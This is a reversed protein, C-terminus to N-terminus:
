SCLKGIEWQCRKWILPVNRNAWSFSTNQLWDRIRAQKSKEESSPCIFNPLEEQAIEKLEIVQVEEGNEKKENEKLEPILQELPPPQNDLEKNQPKSPPEKLVPFDKHFEKYKKGTQKNNAEQKDNKAQKNTEQKDNQKPTHKNAQKNQQKTTQNNPPPQPNDPQEPEEITSPATCTVTADDVWCRYM